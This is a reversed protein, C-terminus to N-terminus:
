GDSEPTAAAENDAPQSLAALRRFAPESLIAGVIGDRLASGDVALGHSATTAKGTVKMLTGTDLAQRLADEWAAVDLSPESAPQSRGELEYALRILDNGYDRTRQEPVRVDLLSNVFKAVLDALPHAREIETDRSPATEPQLLARIAARVTPYEAAEDFIRLLKATSGESM